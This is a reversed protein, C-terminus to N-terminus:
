CNRVTTSACIRKRTVNNAITCRGQGGSRADRCLVNTANKGNFIATFGETPKPAEVPKPAPTDQARLCAACAAMAVISRIARTM